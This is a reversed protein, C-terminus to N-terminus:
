LSCVYTRRIIIITIISKPLYNYTVKALYTKVLLLHYIDVCLNNINLKNKRKKFTFHQKLSKM